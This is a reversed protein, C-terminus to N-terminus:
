AEHQLDILYETLEVVSMDKPMMEAVIAGATSSSWGTPSRTCM